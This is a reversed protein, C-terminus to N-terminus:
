RGAATSPHVYRVAGDRAGTSSRFGLRELLRVSRENQPAVYAEVAETGLETFVWSLAARCAESMLGSGWYNPHLHFALEPRHGLSNFGLAGVFAASSITIAAWRFGTGAQQHYAFFEIIKDSDGKSRAPLVIPQGNVDAADGSYECVEPRAWLHYMDVSHAFTLPELVLRKTKLIPIRLRM